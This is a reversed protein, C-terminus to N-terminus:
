SRISSLRRPSVGPIGVEQDKAKRLANPSVEQFLEQDHIIHRENSFIDQFSPTQPPPPETSTPHTSPHPSSEERRGECGKYVILEPRCYPAEAGPSYSLCSSATHGAINCLGGHPEVWSRHGGLPRKTWSFALSVWGPPEM